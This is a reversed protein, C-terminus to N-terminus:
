GDLDVKSGDKARRSVPATFQRAFGSTHPNWSCVLMSLIALIM